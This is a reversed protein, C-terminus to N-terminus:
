RRQFYSGGTLNEDSRSVLGSREAFQMEEGDPSIIKLGKMSRQLRGPQYVLLLCVAIFIPVAEFLYAFVEHSAVFGAGGQAHKIGVVLNRLVICVSGALLAIIFRKWKLGDAGAQQRCRQFFVCVIWIFAVFVVIQFVLGVVVVKQGIDQIKSDITITMGTGSLQVLFCVVDGLVFIKSLWRPRIPSLEAADLTTVIRSISMYMTAALFIPAPLVLLDYLVYAKFNYPSQSLWFRGYYGCTEMICGMVFPVFYWTKLWCMQFFHGLTCIGFAAIFIIAAPGNPPGSALGFWRTGDTQADM